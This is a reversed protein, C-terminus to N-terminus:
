SGEDTPKDGPWATSVLLQIQKLQTCSSVTATQVAELQVSYMIPSASSQVITQVVKLQMYFLLLLLLLTYLILKVDRYCETSKPVLFYYYYYYCHLHIYRAIGLYLQPVFRKCFSVISLVFLGFDFSASVTGWFMGLADYM